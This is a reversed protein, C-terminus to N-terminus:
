STAVPADLADLLTEFVAGKESLADDEPMALWATRLSEQFKERPLAGSEDLTHALAALAVSLGHVADNLDKGMIM